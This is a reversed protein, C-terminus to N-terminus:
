AVPLYKKMLRDAKTWDVDEVRDIGECLETLLQDQVKGKALAVAYPIRHFTVMSYKPIFIGTYRQELAQEVKKKLLFRPNAVHDRMEVFNEVALDAIADANVKRLREFEGFIAEWNLGGSEARREGTELRLDGTEMRGIIEDLYTCDEFACNMGQGFFPVIAHAADGLLLARGGVHWPTCKITVMAGTPNGFYDDLLSPMLATADPFQKQFFALVKEKADLSRFSQEGEFPFFFTCTFSGDINPLAILMYTGRPWIHLANKEMQFSGGSGAPILLEKYGYDLHQQSLNFRGWRQMDMRIASASGDTGIVVDTKVTVNKGMGEDFVSMDGSEFDMGACKQNFHLRVGPHREAEDMLAMNLQSRSTAYIVETDDKGYRQLTLDGNPSHIMRGKMPIAIQMIRDRLGVDKLAYIGRTSLALNISRGGGIQVKRMDPRREYVDVAHGRKALYISLLSGALGAGVLSVSQLGPVPSQPGPM